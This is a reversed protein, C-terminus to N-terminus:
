DRQTIYNENLDSCLMHNLKTGLCCCCNVNGKIAFVDTLPHDVLRHRQRMLKRAVIVNAERVFIEDREEIEKQKKEKEEAEKQQKVKEEEDKDQKPLLSEKLGNNGLSLNIATHDEDVVVGPIDM